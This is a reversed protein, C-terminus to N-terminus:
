KRTWNQWFSTRATLYHNLGKRDVVGVMKETNFVPVISYGKKQFLLLVDKLSLQQSISEYSPSMYEKVPAQDDSKKKADEIFEEHLVGQIQGWQDIVIFDKEPGRSHLDIAHHMLDDQYIATYNSRLVDRVVGTQLLVEAAVMRYEGAASLFVFVGIFVLIYDGKILGYAIFASALLQGMLSAWRTAIKRGWRMSLLSRLIRGGDMPFAPILNFVILATNLWFLAPLFNSSVDFIKEPDGVPMLGQVTFLYLYVGLIIAIVFNVAPGAIAIILEQAPKEPMHYLRAVGGIPSIIIDKTQVGFRRATLAHGLEHLVVCVFLVLAFIGLTIIGQRSLGAKNGIYGIWLFFFGFTWHVKIPIGEVRLIQFASGLM